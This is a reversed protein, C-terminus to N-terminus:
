KNFLHNLDERARKTQPTAKELADKKQQAELVEQRRIKIDDPANIGIRVTDRGIRLVMIKIERGDPLLVSFSQEVGRTLVLM